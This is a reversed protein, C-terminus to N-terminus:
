CEAWGGGNEEPPWATIIDGSTRFSAAGGKYHFVLIEDGTNANRSQVEVIGKQIMHTICNLADSFTGRPTRKMLDDRNYCKIWGLRINTMNRLRPWFNWRAATYNGPQDHCPDVAAGSAAATVDSTTQGTAHAAAEAAAAGIVAGAILKSGVEVWTMEGKHAGHHALGLPRWSVAADPASGYYIVPGSSTGSSTAGCKTAAMLPLITIAIVTAITKSRM